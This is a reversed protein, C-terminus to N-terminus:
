YALLEGRRFGSTEENYYIFIIVAYKEYVPPLASKGPSERPTKHPELNLGLSSHAHLGNRPLRLTEGGCEVGRM